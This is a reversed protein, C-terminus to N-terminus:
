PTDTGTYRSRTLFLCFAYGIVVGVVVGLLYCGMM